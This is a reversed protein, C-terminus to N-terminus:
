VSFLLKVEDNLQDLARQSPLLQESALFYRLLSLSLDNGSAETPLKAALQNIISIMEETAARIMAWVETSVYIQQTINHEFEARITTILAMQMEPATMSEDRVRMILAQPHMRELLLALREYAQFRVPLLDQARKSNLEMRRAAVELQKAQLTNDLMNSLLLWATVLVIIAPISFKLLELIFEVM